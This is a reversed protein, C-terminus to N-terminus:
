YLFWLLIARFIRANALLGSGFRPVSCDARVRIPVFFQRVLLKNKLAYLLLETGISRYSDFHGLSRYVSMRYGKLGCLPDILEYRIKTFFSFCKESIRSQRSRVGAAVDAGDILLGLCIEILDPNHQGDADITVAFECNLDNAKIFGSNLAEDYGLNESHRVVYAGNREAIIGTQDTSGDDVVILLGYPYCKEIITKISTQENFAPIIIAVKSRVV